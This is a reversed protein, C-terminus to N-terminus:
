DWSLRMWGSLSEGPRIVHASRNLDNPAGSQPEIAVAHDPRTFVVWHDMDSTLSLTLADPWTLVPQQTVDVFTDDWPGEPQPVLRGTPIQDGDVEYMSDAAFAVELPGGRDLHRRYWPHWGLQAPMSHDGAVITMDVQFADDTLAFRQEVRGGFPWPEALDVTLVAHTESLSEATWEQRLVTGHNAHPPSTIPFEWSGGDHQLLGFALRGCWPVMPFSGWRTGKDGETVLLEMGDVVLSCLRGGDPHLVARARDSRLEFADIVDRLM